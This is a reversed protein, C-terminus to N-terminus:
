EYLCNSAACGIVAALVVGLFVGVVLGLSKLASFDRTQIKTVQSLAVTDAMVGRYALLVDPGVRASDAKFTAGNVLVVEVKKKPSTPHVVTPWPQRVTTTGTCGTAQVLVLVALVGAIPRKLRRM